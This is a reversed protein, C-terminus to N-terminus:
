KGKALATCAARFDHVAVVARIAQPPVWGYILWHASHIYNIGGQSAHPDWAVAGVTKVLQDSQRFLIGLRGLFGIHIFAIHGGEFDTDSWLAKMHKNLWSPNDSASIFSSPKTGGCHNRLAEESLVQDQQLRDFTAYPKCQAINSCTIGLSRDHVSHASPRMARVLLEQRSGMPWEYIPKSQHRLVSKRLLAYEASVAQVQLMAEYDELMEALM